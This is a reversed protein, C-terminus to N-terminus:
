PMEKIMMRMNSGFGVGTGAAASQSLRIDVAPSSKISIACQKTALCTPTTSITAIKNKQAVEYITTYETASFEGSLILIGLSTQPLDQVTLPTFKLSFDKQQAKATFKDIFSATEAPSSNSGSLIGVTVSGKPANQLLGIVRLIVFGDKESIESFAAQPFNLSIMSFLLCSLMLSKSPFKFM